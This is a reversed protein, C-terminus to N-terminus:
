CARGLCWTTCCRHSTWTPLCPWRPLPTSAASPRVQPWVHSLLSSGQFTLQSSPQRNAHGPAGCCPMAPMSAVEVAATSPLTRPPLKPTGGVTPLASSSPLAAWTVAGCLAWCCWSTPQWASSWPLFSPAWYRRGPILPQHQPHVPQYNVGPPTVPQQQRGDCVVGRSRSDWLLCAAPHEGCVGPHGRCKCLVAPCALHPTPRAVSPLAALPLSPPLEASRAICWLGGRVQRKKLSFGAQYVIPPLLAYFFAAPSCCTTLSATCIHPCTNPTLLM